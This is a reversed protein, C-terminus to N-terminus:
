NFVEVSKIIYDYNWGIQDESMQLDKEIEEATLEYPSSLELEVIIKVAKGRIFEIGNEEAWNYLWQKIDSKEFDNADQAQYDNRFSTQGVAKDCLAIDESLVTWTYGALEFKDGHNLNSSEPNWILLAPRVCGSDAFVSNYYISGDSLVRAATHQYYGPSRLWWWKNIYPILEINANYEESSLLTIGTFKVDIEKTTFVQKNVKM